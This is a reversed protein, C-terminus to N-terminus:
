SDDFATLKFYQDKLRVACLLNINYWVSDIIFPEVM